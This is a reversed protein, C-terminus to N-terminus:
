LEEGMQEGGLIHLHLHSVTQGGGEGTNIVSRFGFPLLKQERAIKVTAEFLQSVIEHHNSGSEPYAADLSPVHKKPIVLLHVKAQPHIDRICIFREDEYVRPSPIAGDIIKCFICDSKKSM